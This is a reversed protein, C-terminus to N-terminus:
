HCGLVKWLGYIWPLVVSRSVTFWRSLVSHASKWLHVETAGFAIGSKVWHFSSTRTESLIGKEEKFSGFFFASTPKFILHREFQGKLNPFFTVSQEMAMFVPHFCQQGGSCNTQSLVIVIKGTKISIDLCCQDSGLGLSSDFILSVYIASLVLQFAIRSLCYHIYM